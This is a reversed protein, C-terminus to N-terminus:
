ALLAVVITNFIYAEDQRSWLGDNGATLQSDVDVNPLDIVTDISVIFSRLYLDVFLLLFERRIPLRTM